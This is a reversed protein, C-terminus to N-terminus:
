DVLQPVVKHCRACIDDPGINLISEELWWALMFCFSMYILHVCVNDRADSFCVCTPNDHNGVYNRPFFCLYIPSYTDDVKNPPQSRAWPEVGNAVHCQHCWRNLYQFSMSVSLIQFCLVIMLRQPFHDLFFGFFWHWIQHALSKELGIRPVFM